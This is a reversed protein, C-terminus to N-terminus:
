LGLGAEGTNKVLYVIGDYDHEIKELEFM